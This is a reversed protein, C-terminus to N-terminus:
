LKMGSVSTNGSAADYVAAEDFQPGTMVMKKVNASYSSGSGDQAEIEITEGSPDRKTEDIVIVELGGLGSDWTSVDYVGDERVSVFIAHIDQSDVLRRAEIYHEALPGLVDYLDKESVGEINYTREITEKFGDVFKLLNSM